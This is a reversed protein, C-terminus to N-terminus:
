RAGFLGEPDYTARGGVVTAVVRVQELEDAAVARPDASLLVFDALKGPELTGTLSERGAAYAPGVTYGALAQEVTLKQEPYWGELPTGDWRRRTVASRLGVLPDM